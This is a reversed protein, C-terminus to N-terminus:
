AANFDLLCQQIDNVEKVPAEAPDKGELIDAVCRRRKAGSVDNRKEYYGLAINFGRRLPYFQQKSM